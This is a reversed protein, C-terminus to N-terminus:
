IVVAEMKHEPSFQPLLEQQTFMELTLQREGGALEVIKDRTVGFPQVINFLCRIFLNTYHILDPNNRYEEVLTPKNHRSVVYNVMMGPRITVRMKELKKVIIKQAVDHKYETKAIKVAYALHDPKATALEKVAHPVKACMQPIRAIIEQKSTCMAMMELVSLQFMRVVPPVRRQRVEIGRAKIDGNQFVGYYTAPM